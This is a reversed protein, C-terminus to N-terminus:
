KMLLKVATEVYDGVQYPFSKAREPSDKFSHSFGIVHMLEHALHGAREPVTMAKYRPEYTAIDSGITYGVVSSMRKYWPRPVIKWSFRYEDNLFFKNYLEQGTCNQLDGLETFKTRWIFGKFDVSNLVQETLAIVEFQDQTCKHTPLLKM